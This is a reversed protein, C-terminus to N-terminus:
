RGVGSEIEFLVDPSADAPTRILLFVDAFAPGDEGRRVLRVAGSGFAAEGLALCACDFDGDVEDEAYAILEDLRGTDAIVGGCVVGDLDGSVEGALALYELMEHGRWLEVDVEIGYAQTRYAGVPGSAMVSREAGSPKPIEEQVGTLSHNENRRRTEGDVTDGILTAFPGYIDPKRTM